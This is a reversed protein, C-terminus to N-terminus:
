PTATPRTAASAHGPPNITLYATTGPPPPGLQYNAAASSASEAPSMSRVAYPMRPVNHFLRLLQPDVRPAMARYATLVAEPSHFFFKKDTRMNEIFDYTTGKFVVEKAIGGIEKSLAQNEAM